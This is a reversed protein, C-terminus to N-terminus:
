REGEAHDDYDDDYFLFSNSIISLLFRNFVTVTTSLFLHYKYLLANNNITFIIRLGVTAVKGCLQYLSLM